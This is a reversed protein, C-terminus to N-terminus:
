VSDTGHHGLHQPRLERSGMGFRDADERQRCVRPGQWSCGGDRPGRGMGLLLHGGEGDQTPAAPLSSPEEPHPSTAGLLSCCQGPLCTALDQSHYPSAEPLGLTQSFWFQFGPLLRINWINGYSFTAQCKASLSRERALPGTSGVPPFAPGRAETPLEGELAAAGSVGGPGSGAGREWGPGWEKCGPWGRGAAADTQVGAKSLGHHGWHKQVDPLCLSHWWGGWGATSWTGKSGNSWRFTGVM